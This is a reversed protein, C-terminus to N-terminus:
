GFILNRSYAPLPYSDAYRVGTLYLGSPLATKSAATRNKVVLLEQCWDVPKRGLGIELLAGVINRVMHHLFSNAIIEVIVFRKRRIVEIAFVHRMPSQSQCEASRFSTFDHEGLLSQAAKQMKQVELEENVWNTFSNYLSSRIPYNYIVYHYRRSLASFRAHFDSSVQIAWQVSISRPLHSNTGAIWAVLKRNAQTDFHIVQHTAHVKADTRGACMIHIPENAIRTLAIELTSQITKVRPQSQWGHFNSGDYEIGLALRM